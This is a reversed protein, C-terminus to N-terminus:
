GDFLWWIRPCFHSKQWTLWSWHCPIESWRWTETVYRSSGYLVLRCLPRCIFSAFFLSIEFCHFSPGQINGDRFPGFDRFPYNPSFLSQDSLKGRFFSIKFPQCEIVLLAMKSLDAFPWPLSPILLCSLKELPKGNMAIYFVPQDGNHQM